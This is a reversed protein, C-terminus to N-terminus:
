VNSLHKPAHSGRHQFRNHFYTRVGRSALVIKQGSYDEFQDARAFMPRHAITILLLAFFLTPAVLALPSIKETRVAPLAGGLINSRWGSDLLDRVSLGM